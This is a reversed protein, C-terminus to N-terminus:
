EKLEWWVHRKWEKVHVKKWRVKEGKRRVQGGEVM